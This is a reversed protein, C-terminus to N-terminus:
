AATKDQLMHDRKKAETMTIVARENNKKRRDTSVTCAAATIALVGFAIAILYVLRFGQVYAQRAANEAERVLAPSSGAVAEYAARTNTAAATILQQLLSDSYEVGANEIADTMTSPLVENFRNSYIATYIATAVAGGFLRFTGALGVAVGLDSQDELGFSLMTFSLLQPPTITTAALVVTAIAQAEDNAGVSAMSGILATQAVTFGVLQWKEHHLRSCVFVVVLGATWTGCSFIMAYVGRMIIDDEPIFFAQSQRPWLVNMSYYLMGGVFCVVIVMDFERVKRFLKPPFLPYELKAYSCWFGVAIFCCGGIIIPALTGPHTWPYTRGGFNVGILFLAGGSLFLLVGVWDMQKVLQWKTKGDARHKTEFDPPTYFLFLLIFAMCHFSFLYWYAGRWGIDQYAIFAYSIVPSSFAIALSVDLGGVAAIRYRNPVLEQVCAYCLEQFGSGVGFLAGSAIMMNISRGNAGVLAGCISIIAGTMMFYRRGFIDSLRGGISVIMSAGFTWNLTIWTSNPDPGLEANIMPLTTAPILMSMIYANIQGCMAIYALIVEKTLKGDNPDEEGTPTYVAHANEVEEHHATKSMDRIDDADSVRSGHVPVAM